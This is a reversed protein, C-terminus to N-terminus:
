GAIYPLHNKQHYWFHLKSERPFLSPLNLAGTKKLMTVEDLWLGQNQPAFTFFAFAAGGVRSLVELVQLNWPVEVRSVWCQARSRHDLDVNPLTQKEDRSVGICLREDKELGGLLRV